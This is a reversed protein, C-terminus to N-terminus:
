QPLATRRRDMPTPGQPFLPVLRYAFQYTQTALLRYASHPRAGWSNDGGVGMQHLNLRLTVQPDRQMDYPHRVGTFAEPAFHLASAELLPEAIAAMGYGADNRLAIWRVDTKNGTEQPRIYPFFQQDVTGRYVDVFAASKRDWYTEQPGRGYWELQEFGAPLILRTGVEPLEPLGSGPVLQFEALIAGDGFVAYSADFQSPTSTPVVLGVEVRVESASAAVLEFRNPTANPGADRWTGLLSPTGAGLDNDIPPRWFSPRPGSSLLDVGQWRYTSINGSVKSWVIEFRDGEVTLSTDDETVSLAGWASTDPLGPSPVDLPLAFQEQAVAHGADVGPVAQTSRLTVDLWYESGPTRPL